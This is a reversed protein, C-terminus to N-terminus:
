KFPLYEPDKAPAGIQSPASPLPARKPATYEIRRGDDTIVLCKRFGEPCYTAPTTVTQFPALVPQARRKAKAPIKAPKAKAPKAVAKAKAVGKRVPLPITSPQATSQEELTEATLLPTSDHQAEAIIDPLNTYTAAPTAEPQTLATGPATQIAPCLQTPETIGTECQPAPIAPTEDLVTGPPVAPLGPTAPTITPLTQEVTPLPEQHKLNIRLQLRKYSELLEPAAFLPLRTDERAAEMEKESVEGVRVDCGGVVPMAFLAAMLRSAFRRPMPKQM